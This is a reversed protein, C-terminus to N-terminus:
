QENYGVGPDMTGLRSIHRREEEYMKDDPCEAIVFAHFAQEGYKNWDEQLRKNPHQNRRLLYKHQGFRKALSNTTCGVYGKWNRENDIYYILAM